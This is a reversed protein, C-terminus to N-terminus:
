ALISNPIGMVNTNNNKHPQAFGGSNSHLRSAEHTFMLMDPGNKTTRTAKARPIHRNYQEGPVEGCKNNQAAHFCECQQRQPNMTQEMLTERKLAGHEWAHKPYSTRACKNNRNTNCTGDITANRDRALAVHSAQKAPGVQLGSFPRQPLFRQFGVTVVQFTGKPRM